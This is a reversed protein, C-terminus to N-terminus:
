KSLDKTDFYLREPVISTGVKGEPLVWVHKQEGIQKWEYVFMIAELEEGDEMWEAYGGRYKVERVDIKSVSYGAALELAMVDRLEYLGLLYVEGEICNGMVFPDVEYVMPVSWKTVMEFKDDVTVFKGLNIAGKVLGHNHFGEKLTGYVFVPVLIEGEARGDDQEEYDVVVQEGGGRLGDGGDDTRMVQEGGTRLVNALVDNDDVLSACMKGM